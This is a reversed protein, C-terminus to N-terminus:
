KALLEHDDTLTRLQNELSRKDARESEMQATVDRLQQQLRKASDSDHESSM